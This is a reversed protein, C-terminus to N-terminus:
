LINFTFFHQCWKNYASTMLKKTVLFHWFIWFNILILFFLSYLCLFEEYSRFSKLFELSNKLFCEDQHLRRSSMKRRWRWLVDELCRWSTKMLVFINGKSMRRWFFDELSRWSTKILVLISTKTMRGWSTKCFQRWSMKLVDELRKSSTKLAKELRIMLSFQEQWCTKLIDELYIWFTESVYKM